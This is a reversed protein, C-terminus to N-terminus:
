FPKLVMLWLILLLGVGGLVASIWPRVAVLAANIEEASAAPKPERGPMTIGVALRARRLAPGTQASMGGWIVILLGLSAWPWVQGWVNSLFAAWIGAALLVLLSVFSAIVWRGSLDLLARLASVDREGSVRFVVGLSVGHALLFAFVGLLHVFVVWQYM